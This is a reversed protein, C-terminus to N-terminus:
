MNLVDKVIQKATDTVALGAESSEKLMPSMLVGAQKVAQVVEDPPIFSQVGALAMESATVAHVALFGNRKICPVEVLGAVPDCVLGMVNKLALAAAHVVQENNGRMLDVAAGAAMASAVGCEAQCGAVAGALPMQQAAIKGIVGATILADIQGEESFGYEETYATIVSPLIGCSGATPCAVIRGMRQNEESIAISYTLIKGILSNFPLNDANRYRKLIKQSDEGSMGSPSIGFNKLGDKISSKMVNLNRLALNRIEERSKELMHSELECFVECIRKKHRDTVKLLQSFTVINEM